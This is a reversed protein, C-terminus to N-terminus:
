KLVRLSNSSFKNLWTPIKLTSRYTLISRVWLLHNPSWIKYFKINSTCLILLLIYFHAFVPCKHVHFIHQYYEHNTLSMYHPVILPQYTSSTSKMCWLFYTIIMQELHSYSVLTVFVTWVWAVAYQNRLSLPMLSWIVM